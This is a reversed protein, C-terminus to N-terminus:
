KLLVSYKPHLCFKPKRSHYMSLTFDATHLQVIEFHKCKCSDYEAGEAAVCEFSDLFRDVDAVDAGRHLAFKMTLNGGSRVRTRLFNEGM